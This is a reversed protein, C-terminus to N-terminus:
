QAVRGVVFRKKLKKRLKRVMKEAQIILSHNKRYHYYPTGRIRSLMTELLRRAEASDGEKSLINAIMIYAEPHGWSRLHEQLRFKARDIEGLEVLTQALALSAEGYKYDAQKNVIKDLNKKASNFDKKGMQIQVLGWLGELNNEEKELATIFAKEAKEFMMMDLYVNGLKIYQYAKGINKAEAEAMWLKNNNTWRKVYNGFPSNIYPLKRVLFYIIAGPIYFLILIFLWTTRQPENKICDYLMVFWFILLFLGWPSALLLSIIYSM